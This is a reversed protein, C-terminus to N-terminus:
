DCRLNDPTPDFGRTTPGPLPPAPGGRFLYDLMRIADSIDLQGSDDMDAADECPISVQLRFLYYLLTLVDSIDITSDDNADGRIFLRVPVLAQAVKDYRRVFTMQPPSLKLVGLLNGKRVVLDDESGMSTRVPLFSDEASLAWGAVAGQFVSVQQFGERTIAARLMRDDGILLLEFLAGAAFRGALLRQDGEIIWPVRRGAPDLISGNASAAVELQHREANWELVFLSSGAALLIQEGGGPLFRARLALNAGELTVPGLQKQVSWVLRLGQGHDKLVGLRDSGKLLMEEDGDGDLDVNFLCDQPALQWGEDESKSGPLIGDIDLRRVPLGPLRGDIETLAQASKIFFTGGAGPQFRGRSLVPREGQTWRAVNANTWLVTLASGEWGLVAVRQHNSAILVHRGDAQLRHLLFADDRDFRWHPEDFVAGVPAPLLDPVESSWLTRAEGGGLRVLAARDLRHLFVEARGDGDFDGAIIHDGAALVWSDLVGEHTDGSELAFQGGPSAVLLAATTGHVILLDDLGDGTFDGPFRILEEGQDCSLGCGRFANLGIGDFGDRLFKGWDDHDHFVETDLRGNRDLDRSVPHVDVLGNHDWDLNTRYPSNPIHEVGINALLHQNPIRGLGLVDWLERETISLFRGRSFDMVPRGDKLDVGWFQYRYNMISPYNPKNNRHEWRGERTAGGHGLGFCHGLEHLLNVSYHYRLREPSLHPVPRRFVTGVQVGAPKLGRRRAGENAFSDTYPHAPQTRDPSSDQQEAFVIYYFLNRRSPRFWAPDYYLDYLSRIGSTGDCSPRSPFLEQYPIVKREDPLIRFRSFDPVNNEERLEPPILDLIDPGLDFHIRIGALSTEFVRYVDIAAQYAVLANLHPDDGASEMWDIEVFVDKLLPHAGYDALPEHFGFRRIGEIEWGDPIGDRDTDTLDGRAQGAAMTSGLIAWAISVLAPLCFSYRRGIAILVSL